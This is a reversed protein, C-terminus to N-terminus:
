NLINEVKCSRWGQAELDYYKLTGFSAGTTEAQPRESGLFQPNLTGLANRISGDVKKFQFRVVGNLLDRKLKLIRWAQKYTESKNLGTRRLATATHHVDTWQIRIAM